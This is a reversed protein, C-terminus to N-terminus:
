VDSVNMRSIYCFKEKLKIKYFIFVPNSAANLSLNINSTSYNECSFDSKDMHGHGEEGGGWLGFFLSQFIFWNIIHIDIKHRPCLQDSSAM